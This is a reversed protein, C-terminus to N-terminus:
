LSRTFDTVVPVIAAPTPGHGQDPLVLRRADPLAAAVADAAEPLGPFTADGSVVLAPLQVSSWRARWDPDVNVERVAALDYVLTPAVATLASWFPSGAMADVQAAPVGIVSTMNYRMAEDHEGAAILSRLHEIHTAHDLGAHFPPEYLVLGRVDVGSGVAALAVAAGSSSTYLVAPGVDAVLAAVDEAERELAWPATDGSRGRGRRDYDVATHGAAAVERAVATTREDVARYQTAGGIFIVAPGEGHRDHDIVTGDASTVTSM